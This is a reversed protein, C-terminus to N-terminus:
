DVWRMMKRFSPITDLTVLTATQGLGDLGGPVWANTRDRQESLRIRRRLAIIPEPAIGSGETQAVALAPSPAHYTMLNHHTEFGRRM